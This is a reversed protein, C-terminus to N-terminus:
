SLKEWQKELARTVDALSLSLRRAEVVLKEMEQNLLVSKEQASSSPIAQVVTGVGPEVQLLGAKTLHSVVKHATNPNIRLEQSLQRVSPFRDGPRLRGTILAKQVAYIVQEYPPTGPQIQVHFSLM